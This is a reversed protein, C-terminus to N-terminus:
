HRQPTLSELQQRAAPYNPKLRLAQRYHAAAEDPKGLRAFAMGLNFQAEPNDENLRLAESYHQIAEDLRNQEALVNGLNNHAQADSPNLRLSEQYEAIAENFKRQAAFANGLNSHASAYNPKFHIAARFHEIAEDLHGQMALAIGINNHADAHEPKENLVFRYHEIAAPIQGIESLANGLNNHVEVHKPRVRLAAEYYPIAEMPKKAGALAYGINNLADEYLPNIELAKRYNVLADDSKGHNALYFGLNNYALYNRSTVTVARQFLSESDHWFFIQRATLGACALLSLGGTLAFLHGRAPSVPVLECVGWVLGICLGIMPIYTYRDAMSQIGVQILGIVPILSGVFWFWGVALYPRSRALVTVIVTIGLVLIVAATVQWAPWHGPHPYLVSLDVPWFMKGLYRAYSVFANAVRELLSISASVAGGKRQVLFTIVCSVVTLIFFPIKELIAYSYSLAYPSESKNLFRIRGVEEGAKRSLRNLPWYDLLLLLAPVTVLMPKSMLGLAFLLLAACYYFTSCPMGLVGPAPSAKPSNRTHCRVYRTYAGLTLIFFLTSLVDKRESIWAVSEVHLPHLAFLAAVFASRWHAGTMERLVLFLLVTNAIHFIVSTLHHAGPRNGFLQWDIMHSLWTLPHWNSADGSTFAWVINRWRFGGQVHNNSTVYDPDDYNVFDNLAALWYIALTALILLLSIRSPALWKEGTSQSTAPRDARKSLRQKDKLM